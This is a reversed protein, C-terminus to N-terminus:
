SINKTHCISKQNNEVIIEIVDIRLDTDFIENILTYYRASNIIHKLKFNNISEKPLGFALSKRTKVEVFCISNEEKDFAIIDIEGLKCRFNKQIILYGNKILYKAAKAEGWEGLKLLIGEAFYNILM